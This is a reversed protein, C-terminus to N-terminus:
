DPRVSAPLEDILRMVFVDDGTWAGRAACDPQDSNAERRGPAQAPASVGLVFGLLSIFRGLLRFNRQQLLTM